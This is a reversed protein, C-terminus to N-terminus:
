KFLQVMRLLLSLWREKGALSETYSFIKDNLTHIQTNHYEACLDTINQPTGHAYASSLLVTFFVGFKLKIM